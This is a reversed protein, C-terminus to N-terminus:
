ENKRFTALRVFLLSPQIGSSETTIKIRNRVPNTEDVITETFKVVTFGDSEGNDFWHELDRSWEWARAVDSPPNKATTALFTLTGSISAAPNELGPNPTAPSTGLISEVGNSLGDADPDADFGVIAPDSEGPFFGDIWAAFDNPKEATVSQFRSVPLTGDPLSDAYIAIAVTDGDNPITMGQTGILSFRSVENIGGIAFAQGPVQPATPSLKPFWYFAWKRGSELNMGVVDIQDVLNQTLGPVGTSTDDMKGVAFIRDGEIMTGVELTKGAFASYAAAPDTLSADTGLGGPFQGDNNEDYVMVWLRGNQVPAGSPDALPGFMIQMTVTAWGLTPLAWFTGALLAPLSRFSSTRPRTPQSM